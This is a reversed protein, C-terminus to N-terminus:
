ESEPQPASEDAAKAEGKRKNVAQRLIYEIQGNVSRLEAQAWGELEAWLTPDIRLLFSKREAM